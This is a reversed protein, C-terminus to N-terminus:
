ESLYKKYLISYSQKWLNFKKASTNFESMSADEFHKIEVDRDYIITIGKNQAKVALAVEECLLFMEPDFVPLLNKLVAKPFIIFSGHCAFIKRKNYFLMDFVHLIKSLAIALKLLFPSSYVTAKNFLSFIANHRKIYMPNQRKGRNNIINPAIIAHRYSLLNDFPIKKIEIDCNSVILFDFNYMKIAHEIGKNNGDGYGTNQNEILDFKYRHELQRIMELNERNSYNDVCIIKYSLGKVVRQTSILFGELDNATNYNLLVFVINYKRM